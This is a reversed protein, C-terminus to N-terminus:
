VVSNVSRYSAGAETMKILLLRDSPSPPKMALRSTSRSLSSSSQSTEGGSPLKRSTMLSPSRNMKSGTFSLWRSTITSARPAPPLCLCQYCFALCSPNYPDDWSHRRPDDSNNKVAGDKSDRKGAGNMMGGGGGGGGGGGKPDKFLLSQQFYRPRHKPELRLIWRCLKVFRWVLERRFLIYVWTDLIPNFSAIRILMLVWGQSNFKLGTQCVLVFVLDSAERSIHFM